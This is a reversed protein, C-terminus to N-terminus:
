GRLAEVQRRVQVATVGLRSAESMLEREVSPSPPGDRWAQQVMLEVLHERAMRDLQSARARSIGLWAAFSAMRHQEVQDLRRDAYAVAAVMSWMAERASPTTAGLEEATLPPAGGDLEAPSAGFAKLMTREDDTVVGDALAVEVLMRLLVQRDAAQGLPASRVLDTLREATPGVAGAPRAAPTAASRAGGLASHHVWRGSADRGFQDAVALFARLVAQEIDGEDFVKDRTVAAGVVETSRMAAQYAAAGLAGGGALASMSRALEQRMNWQATRAELEVHRQLVSDASAQLQGVSAVSAGTVPCRFSVIVRAGERRERAVLPQIEAYTPQSM